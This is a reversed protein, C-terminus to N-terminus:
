LCFDHKTLNGFRFWDMGSDSPCKLRIYLFERWAKRLYGTRLFPIYTLWPSDSSQGRVQWVRIPGVKLDLLLKRGFWSNFLLFFSFFFARPLYQTWFFPGSCSSDSSCLFLFSPYIFSSAAATAVFKWNKKMGSTFGTLSSWTTMRSSTDTLLLDVSTMFPHVHYETTSLLVWTIPQYSPAWICVLCSPDM